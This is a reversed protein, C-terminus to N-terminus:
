RFGDGVNDRVTMYPSGEVKRGEDLLLEDAKRGRL